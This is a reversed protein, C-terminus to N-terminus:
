VSLPTLCNFLLLCPWVRSTYCFFSNPDLRLFVINQCSVKPNEFSLKVKGHIEKSPKGPHQCSVALLFASVCHIQCSLVSAERSVETFLSIHEWLTCCKASRTPTSIWLDRTMRVTMWCSWAQRKSEWLSKQIQDEEVFFFILRLFTINLCRQWEIHM